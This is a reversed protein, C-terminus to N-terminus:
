KWELDDLPTEILRDIADILTQRVVAWTESPLSRIAPTAALKLRYTGDVHQTFGVCLVPTYGHAILTDEFRPRM